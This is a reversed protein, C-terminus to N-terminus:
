GRGAPGEHERLGPPGRLARDILPIEYDLDEVVTDGVPRPSWFLGRKSALFLYSRRKTDVGLCIGHDSILYKLIWRESFWKM